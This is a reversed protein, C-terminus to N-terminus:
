PDGTKAGYATDWATLDNVDVKGDGNVDGILKLKVAGDVYVNNTTNTEHPLADAHAAIVYPINSAPFGSTNWDYLVIRTENPQLNQIQLSTLNYEM